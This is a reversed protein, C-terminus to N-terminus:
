FAGNIAGSEKPKMTTEDTETTTAIHYDMGAFKTIQWGFVDQYFKQAREQDDYPIEFHVVKNM